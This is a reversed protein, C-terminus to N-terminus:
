GWIREGGAQSWSLYGVELSADEIGVTVHGWDFFGALERSSFVKGVIADDAIGQFPSM